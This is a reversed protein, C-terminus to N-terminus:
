QSNSCEIYFHWQMWFSVYSCQLAISPATIVSDWLSSSCSKEVDIIGESPTFLKALVISAFRKFIEFLNFEWIWEPLRSLNVLNKNKYLEANCRQHQWGSQYHPQHYNNHFEGIPLKQQEGVLQMAMILM